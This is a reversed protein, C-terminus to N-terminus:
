NLRGARCREYARQGSQEARNRTLLQAGLSDRSDTLNEFTNRATQEAYNECGPRVPPRYSAPALGIEPAASVCAALPLTSLLLAAPLFLSISRM